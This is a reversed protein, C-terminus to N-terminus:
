ARDIRESIVGELGLKCANERFRPGDGTVHENYRLGQIEKKFLRKLREKREILPLQATSQGNLFLLYPSSCSSTSPASIDVRGIWAPEPSCNSIAAMSVRTCATATTNSKM